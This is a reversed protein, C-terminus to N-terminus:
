TSSRSPREDFDPRVDFLTAGFTRAAFDQREKVLESVFIRADPFAVRLHRTVRGAGSPLDLISTVTVKNALLLSQFIIEIASRGIAFYDESLMDDGDFIADPIKSAQYHAYHDTLVQLTKLM